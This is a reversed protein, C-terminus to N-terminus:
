RSLLHEIQGIQQVIFDARASAPRRSPGDAAAGLVERRAAVSRDGAAAARVHPTVKCTTEQRRRAQAGRSSPSIIESARGPRM